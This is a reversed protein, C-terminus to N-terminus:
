PSSRPLIEWAAVSDAYDHSYYTPDDYEREYETVDPLPPSDCDFYDPLIHFMSTSDELSERGIHLTAKRFEERRVEQHMRMLAMQHVPLQPTPFVHHTYHAWPSEGSTKEWSGGYTAMFGLNRLSLNESRLRFVVHDLCSSPHKVMFRLTRATQNASVKMGLLIRLTNQQLSVIIASLSNQGRHALDQVDDPSLFREQVYRADALRQENKAAEPTDLITLIAERSLPLIFCHPKEALKRFIDQIMQDICIGISPESLGHDMTKRAFLVNKSGEKTPFIMYNLPILQVKGLLLKKELTPHYLFIHFGSCILRTRPDAGFGLLLDDGSLITSVLNRSIKIHQKEIKPHSDDEHHAGCLAFTLEFSIPEGKHSQVLNERVADTLPLAGLGHPSINLRRSLPFDLISEVRARDDYLIHAHPHSPALSASEEHKTRM